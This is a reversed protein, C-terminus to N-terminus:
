PSKEDPYFRFKLKAGKVKRDVADVVHLNESDPVVITKGDPAV